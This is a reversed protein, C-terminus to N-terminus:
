EAVSRRDLHREPHRSFMKHEGLAGKVAAVPQIHEDVRAERGAHRHNDEILCHIVQADGIFFNVDFACM